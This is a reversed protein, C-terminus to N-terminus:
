CNLISTFPNRVIYNFDKLPFFLHFRHYLSQATAVTRRPSLVWTYAQRDIRVLKSRSVLWGAARCSRHFWLRDSSAERRESYIAERATESIVSRGGQAHLLTQIGQKTTRGDRGARWNNDQNTTQEVLERHRSSEVKSNFLDLSISLRSGLHLDDRICLTLVRIRKAQKMTSGDRWTCNSLRTRRGALRRSCACLLCCAVFNFCPAGQDLAAGVIESSCISM